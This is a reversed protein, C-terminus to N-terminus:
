SACDASRDCTDGNRRKKPRSPPSAVRPPSSEAADPDHVYMNPNAVSPPCGRELVWRRSAALSQQEAYRGREETICMAYTVDTAGHCVTYKQCRNFLSQASERLEDWRGSSVCGCVVVLALTWARPNCM